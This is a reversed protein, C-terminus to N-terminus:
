EWRFTAAALAPTLVAWACLVALAAPPGPAAGALLAARLVDALAASPLLAVLPSVVGPLAAAPVFVGGALLLVVYLLNAGALAAEARWSGGIWLGLGAFAPTGLLLGAAALAANGAPRWGLAAATGVLLAVQAAEILVVVLAKAAILAAPPLPTGGLRKLVGYQREFATAIGLSVLATSMVAQALVGPLFAAAPPRGGAGVALGMGAPASALFVLVLVPLVLTVLVSEGRRLTLRLEIATQALLMQRLPPRRTRV